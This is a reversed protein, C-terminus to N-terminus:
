RGVIGARSLVVTMFSFQREGPLLTEGSAAGRITGRLLVDASLCRVVTRSCPLLVGVTAGRVRVSLRPSLVGFVEAFVAVGRVSVHRLLLALPSASRTFRVAGRALPPDLSM